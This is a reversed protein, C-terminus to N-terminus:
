VNRGPVAGGPGPVVLFAFILGSIDLYVFESGLHMGYDIKPVIGSLKENNQWFCVRGGLFLAIEVILWAFILRSTCLSADQFTIM